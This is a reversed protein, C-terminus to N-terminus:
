AKFVNCASFGFERHILGCEESAAVAGFDPGLDRRQTVRYHM